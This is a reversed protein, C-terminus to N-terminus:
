LDAGGQGRPVLPTAALPKRTKCPRADEQISTSSAMCSGRMTEDVGKSFKTNGTSPPLSGRFVDVVLCLVGRHAIPPGERRNGLTQSCLWERSDRPSPRHLQWRQSLVCTRFSVPPSSAPVQWHFLVGRVPPRITM